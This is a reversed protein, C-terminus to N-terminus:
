GYADTSCSCEPDHLRLRSQGFCGTNQQDARDKYRYTTASRGESGRRTHKCTEPECHRLIVKRDRWTDRHRQLLNIMASKDIQALEATQRMFSVVKPDAFIPNMVNQVKDM